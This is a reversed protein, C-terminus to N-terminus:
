HDKELWKELMVVCSGEKKHLYPFLALRLLM